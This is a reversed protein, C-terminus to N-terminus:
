RAKGATAQRPRVVAPARRGVPRHPGSATKERRRGDLLRCVAQEIRRQREPQPLELPLRDLADAITQGANFRDIVTPDIYSARCVAPTNGLYRAVEAVALSVVRKRATPSTARGGLVALSTAALVTANWTRFDKASFDGGNTLERIYENIDSSHVDVWRRGNRYALLEPGGSRRRKLAAVVDFVDEDVVSQIRRTGGKALYDFRVTGDGHLSVHSRLMTALGYTNNVEAYSESGIRFFGRDLLRVACSLVRDRGLGERSLREDTLRRMRPLAAAFELMREFKERNRRQRWAPHYLYQRRGAADIGTAQLHGWPDACIWVNTWAPPIALSRIRDLEVPEQVVEGTERRYEFGRGRRRRSIGPKSCDSRRLRPM